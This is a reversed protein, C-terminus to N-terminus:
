YNFGSISNGNNIKGTSRLMILIDRCSFVLTKFNNNGVDANRLLVYKNKIRLVYLNMVALYYM